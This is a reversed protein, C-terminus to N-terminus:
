VTLLRSVGGQKVVQLHLDPELESLLATNHSIILVHQFRDVIKNLGRAFVAANVPDLGDTPEDLILINHKVLVDRFALAAIIAAMRMEGRSQDKVTEGGHKNVVSVEIDGELTEFAVGIEGETFIESYNTAAQNLLPVISGMLYAPLGDRGVVAMCTSVFEQEVLTAAHALDHAKVKRELDKIRAAADALMAELKARAEAKAELDSVTKTLTAQEKRLANNEMDCKQFKEMLAKRANRNSEQADQYQDCAEGAEAIKQRLKKQYIEQKKVDVKSGCTPCEGVLKESAELQETIVRIDAEYDAAKFLLKEFAKQNKDLEPNLDAKIRDNQRITSEIEPLRRQKATLDKTDVVPADKLGRTIQDAGAMAEHVASNAAVSEVCIEALAKDLRSYVKRLKEVADLFRELGLLRSFLEKREKETGFVSGIEQQGIYVANTLVSWTLNTIQEILAATRNADGMTIDQGDLVVTFVNPRRGRKVVLESNNPLRIHQRVLATNTVDQRAWGDFVQNKFTRGFLALFPLTTFSSKGAGNSVEAGWDHNTGTLLTLGKRNWDFKVEKFCLTEKAAMEGFQLGQVGFLNTHPLFQRLYEVIQDPLIGAPLDVTSLYSRLVEEDTGQKTFKAAPLLDIDTYQPVLHLNAGPYKKAFKERAAELEKEPNKGVPVNLRVRTGKWTIPERFGPVDPDYWGPIVSPASTLTYGKKDFDAVLVRHEFNAEGWDMAFPSGVYHINPKLQQPKHIHGSVCLSYDKAYIDDATLGEKSSMYNNWACGKIENHFVLISQVGKASYTAANRFAERQRAPDRFYPVMTILIHGFRIEVPSTDAVYDAGGAAVVPTCSPVDDQTTIYDHNGRVFGIGDCQKRIRQFAELLFNTVRQDVPNTSEKADGTHIFYRPSQGARLLACIQNVVQECQALNTVSCQWDGSFVVRM